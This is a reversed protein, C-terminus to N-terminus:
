QLQLEAISDGDSLMRKLQHHHVSQVTITVTCAFFLCTSLLSIITKRRQTKGVNVHFQMTKDYNREPLVVRYHAYM